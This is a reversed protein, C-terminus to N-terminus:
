AVGEDTAGGGGECKKVYLYISSISFESFKCLISSSESIEPIELYELFKRFGCPKQKGM